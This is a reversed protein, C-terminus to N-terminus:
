ADQVDFTVASVQVYKRTSACLVCKTSLRGIRNAAIRERSGHEKCVKVVQDDKEDERDEKRITSRGRGALRM